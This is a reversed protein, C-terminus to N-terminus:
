APTCAKAWQARDFIYKWKPPLSSEMQVDLAIKSSAHTRVRAEQAGIRQEWVNSKQYAKIHATISLCAVGLSSSATTKTASLICIVNRIVLDNIIQASTIEKVRCRTQWKTEKYAHQKNGSIQSCNRTKILKKKQNTRGTHSGTASQFQSRPCSDGWNLTKKHLTSHSNGGPSTQATVLWLCTSKESFSIM